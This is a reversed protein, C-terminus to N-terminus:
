KGLLDTLQDIMLRIQGLGEATTLNISYRVARGKGSVSLIGKEVLNKLAKKIQYDSYKDGLISTLTGKSVFGSHTLISLIDKEESALEPYSGPLDVLWITLTTKELSTVIQPSRLMNNSVAKFIQYGGYGQRESLGMRRFASMIVDNRSKTSGGRFFKDIPILMKGPNEFRYYTDFVEIRISSNPISYDAHVLTNVLAERLAQTMDTNIRVMNGDLKFGSKTTSALKQYAIEYFNFLNMEEPRLDDTSVRDAWRETSGRYDFYDIQYSDFYRKIINYRGFLLLTGSYLCVSEKDSDDLLGLHLLFDQMKMDEYGGEPYRAEIISKFRVLTSRDLADISLDKLPLRDQSKSSGNRILAKLEEATALYDGEGRRIYTQSMEGNIYVPLETFDAQPITIRIVEKDNAKIIEFAGTSISLSSIKKRNRITNWFDSEMKAANIVGTVSFTRSNEKIGLIIVGGRTNAFASVTEWMSKPLSDAAEKFEVDVGEKGLTDLLNEIANYKAEATM